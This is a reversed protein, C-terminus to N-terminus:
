QKVETWSDVRGLTTKDVQVHSIDRLTVGAPGHVCWIWVNYQLHPFWLERHGTRRASSYLWTGIRSRSTKSTMSAHSDVYKNGLVSSNRQSPTGHQRALM